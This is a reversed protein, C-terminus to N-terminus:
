PQRKRDRWPCGYSPKATRGEPPHASPANRAIWLVAELFGRNDAGSRGPDGAKGPLLPAIREWQVDDLVTRDLAPRRKGAKFGFKRGFPLGQMLRIDVPGFMVLQGTVIGAQQVFDKTGVSATTEFQHPYCPQGALLRPPSTQHGFGLEM